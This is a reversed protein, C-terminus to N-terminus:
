YGGYFKRLFWEASLLLIIFGLIWEMDILPRFDTRAYRVPKIDEHGLLTDSLQELQEFPYFTGGYKKAWKKLMEHNAQTNRAELNVPTIVFNGEKRYTEGGRQTSAVFNYRGTELNGADLRYKQSTRDFVYEFTEGQPSKLSLKVEPDNVLEYSANYLEATLIIDENETYRNQHEVRFLSRDRNLILYRTMSNIFNNFTEHNQHMLYDRIRWKWIGTGSIIGIKHERQSSITILPMSTKLNDLKQFLYPNMSPSSEYDGFPVSLPPSEKFLNRLQNGTSFLTFDENFGPLAENMSGNTNNIELGANISNFFDINTQEGIVFLSPIKKDFVSALLSAAQKDSSPIQHFVVLDYEMINGNFSELRSVTVENRKSKELSSKIAYVDPHPAHALVLVASKDDLVEVYFSRSNNMTNKEGELSEFAVRYKQLGEQDAELYFSLRESFSDKNIRIEKTHIKEDNRFVKMVTREGKAQSASMLVEVPFENGIFSIDNAVVKVVRVEKRPTPDGLGVTYVDFSTNLDSYLPNVGQNYVGDSAVVVAGVNRNTYNVNINELLPGFDTIKEDFSISDQQEVDEGFTYRDVKYKQALSASFQESNKLYNTSFNESSESLKVSATNDQAFVIVPKETEYKTSRFLPSLLLFAVVTVTLFRMVALAWVLGSSFNYKRNRFYLVTSYIIGAAICLLLFWLPYETLITNDM